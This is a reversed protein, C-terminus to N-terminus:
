NPGWIIFEAAEPRPPAEGRQGRVIGALTALDPVTLDPRCDVSERRRADPVRRARDVWVATWGLTKAPAVDHFRSQAVHVIRSPHVGMADKARYFNKLAPKYAEVQQATIVWDFPVELVEATRAFLHDDINSIVAIRFHRALLRLAPVTDEFPKWTPLSNCLAKEDFKGKVGFHAAIKKTVERLVEKYPRYFGSQVRAEALAYCDLLEADSAEIGHGDRFARLTDLIGSEWDILTGYCDFSMAEYNRFDVM